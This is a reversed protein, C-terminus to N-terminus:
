GKLKMLDSMRLFLSQREDPSLGDVLGLVDGDEALYADILALDEDSLGSLVRIMLSDVAAASVGSGGALGLAELVPRGDGSGPGPGDGPGRNGLILLTALAAAAIGPALALGVRWWRGRRKDSAARAREKVVDEFRTWYSAPPEPVLDRAAINLAARVSAVYSRCTACGALHAEVGALRDDALTGDVFDILDKPELCRDKDSV